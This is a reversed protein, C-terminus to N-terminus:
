GWMNLSNCIVLVLALLKPYSLTQINLSTIETRLFAEDVLISIKESDSRSLSTQSDGVKDYFELNVVFVKFIEKQM